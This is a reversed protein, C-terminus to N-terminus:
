LVLIGFLLFLQLYYIKACHIYMNAIVILPFFPYFIAGPFPRQTIVDLLHMSLQSLLFLLICQVHQSLDANVALHGSMEDEMKTENHLLNIPVQQLISKFLSSFNGKPWTLYCDRVHQLMEQQEQQQSGHGHLDHHWNVYPTSPSTTPYVCWHWWSECCNSEQHCVLLICLIGDRHWGPSWLFMILCCPSSCRSASTPFMLRWELSLRNDCHIYAPGHPHPWFFQSVSLVLCSPLHRNPVTNHHLSIQNLPTTLWHHSYCWQKLFEFGNTFTLVHFYWLLSGNKLVSKFMEFIFQLHKSSALLLSGYQIIGCNVRIQYGQEKSTGLVYSSLRRRFFVALTRRWISRLTFLVQAGRSVASVELLKLCPCPQLGEAICVIRRQHVIHPDRAAWQSPPEIQGIRSCIQQVTHSFAMDFRCLM